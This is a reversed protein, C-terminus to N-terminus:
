VSQAKASVLGHLCMELLTDAIQEASYRGDAQFWRLSSITSGSMLRLVVKVDLDERIEGETQAKEFLCLMFSDYERQSDMHRQKIEASVQDVVNWYAASFADNRLMQVMQMRFAIRIKDLASAHEPASDVAQTVNDTIFRTSIELVEEVLEDKSSFYYYLSGAHTGAAAGIEALTAEAYGKQSFVKAASEVIM